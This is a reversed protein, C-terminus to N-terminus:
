VDIEGTQFMVLIEDSRPNKVGCKKLDPFVNIQIWTLQEPDPKEHIGQHRYEAMCRRLIQKTLDPTLTKKKKSEQLDHIWKQHYEIERQHQQILADIIEHNGGVLGIVDVAENLVESANEQSHLMM